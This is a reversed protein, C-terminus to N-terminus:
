YMRHGVKVIFDFDEHCPVKEAPLTLDIRGQSPNVTRTYLSENYLNDHYSFQIERICQAWAISATSWRVRIQFEEEEEGWGAGGAGGSQRTKRIGRGARHERVHPPSVVEPATNVRFNIFDSSVQFDDRM